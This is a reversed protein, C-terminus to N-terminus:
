TKLTPDTGELELSVAKGTFPCIFNLGMATVKLGGTNKNGRGYRPDGMVPYGIMDFHRRIQHLRGTGITVTLTTTNTAPNFTEVHYDTLAEKGDLPLTISGGMGTMNGPVEIQYRKEIKGERFLRSLKAAADRTHAVLILGVAERDLRHVPYATRRPTFEKEAQRLLSCHDGYMTGQTMLGPPKYWVSYRKEDNLCVARPPEISLITEDYYLEIRDGPSLQATAKRLREPKGTGRCRWVAGKIMANKIKSKSIGTRAALLDCATTPDDPGVTEKLSIINM